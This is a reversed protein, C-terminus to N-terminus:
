GLDNLYRSLFLILPLLYGLYSASLRGKIPLSANAQLIM